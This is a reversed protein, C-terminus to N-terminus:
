MDAWCSLPRTTWCTLLEASLFCGCCRLLCFVAAAAWCFFVAAAAWCFLFLQLLEASCFCSFCRLEEASFPVSVTADLSVRETKNWTIRFGNLHHKWLKIQLSSISLSNNLHFFREEYKREGVRGEPGLQDLLQSTRTNNSTAQGRGRRNKKRPRVPASRAKKM